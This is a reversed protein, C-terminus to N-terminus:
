EVISRLLGLAKELKAQKGLLKATEETCTEAQKLTCLTATRYYKKDEQEPEMETDDTEEEAKRPRAVRAARWAMAITQEAPYIKPKDAYRLIAFLFGSACNDCVVEFGSTVCGRLMSIARGPDGSGNDSCVDMHLEENQLSCEVSGGVIHWSMTFCGMCKMLNLLSSVLADDDMHWDKYLPPVAHVFQLLSVKGSCRPFGAWVDGGCTATDQKQGPVLLRVAIGFKDTAVMAPSRSRARPPM